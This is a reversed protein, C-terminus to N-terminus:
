VHFGRETLYERLEHRVRNLTVSVKNESVKLRDAIEGINDLYWYRRM